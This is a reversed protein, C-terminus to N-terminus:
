KKIIKNFIQNTECNGHLLIIPTGDGYVEYNINVNNVNVIM